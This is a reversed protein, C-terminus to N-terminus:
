WWPVRYFPVVIKNDEDVNNNHAHKMANMGFSVLMIIDTENVAHSM